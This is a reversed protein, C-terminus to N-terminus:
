APLLAALTPALAQPGVAQRNGQSGPQAPSVPCAVVNNM